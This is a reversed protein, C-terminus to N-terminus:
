ILYVKAWKSLSFQLSIHKFFIKITLFTHTHVTKNEISLCCFFFCINGYMNRDKVNETELKLHNSFNYSPPVSIHIYFFIYKKQYFFDKFSSLCCGLHFILTSHNNITETFISESYIQKGHPKCSGNCLNSLQLHRNHQITPHTIFYNFEKIIQFLKKRILQVVTLLRYLNM